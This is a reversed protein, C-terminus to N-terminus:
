INMIYGFFNDELVSDDDLIFVIDKKAIDMGINRSLGSGRPEKRHDKKYYIIKVGKNRLIHEIKSIFINGLDGDDVIVIEKPFIYQKLISKLLKELDNRRNYTPIVVSFNM